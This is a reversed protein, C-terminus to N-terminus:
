NQPTPPKAARTQPRGQSEPAAQKPNSGPPQPPNKRPGATSPTRTHPTAAAAAEGSTTAPQIRAESAAAQTGPPTAVPGSSEDANQSALEKLSLLILVEEVRDLRVAPEVRIAQFPLAPAVRAVTGIPLDKPFIRDDGSTLITEGVHVKEEDVVYDMRPQPDGTGRVVGHTRTDAFLAGVGSDKDSILLVQATNSFVEVVKGVVGDPTIVAQNRRLHDREGRDIFLTESAPDASAGIVQAALMPAEPHKDRFGLLLRLRQAEAVQSELGLNRLRLQDVESRLHENEGRTGRLGIYGRWVGGIKRLTWTGAREMPTLLEVGWYRILRVDHERKIQFALLLVQALVAGALVTTPHRRSIVHQM